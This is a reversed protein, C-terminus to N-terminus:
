EKDDDADRDAKDLARARKSEQELIERTRRDLMEDRVSKMEALRSKLEELRTELQRVEMNRRELRNDFEQAALERISKRIRAKEASDESARYNRAMEQLQLGVQRERILVLARAPDRERTDMLRRMEPAIREMQREYRQPASEKVKDLDVVMRPFHEEMFDMIDKRQAESMDKWAPGRPGRREPAGRRARQPGDMPRDPGDMLPDPRDILRDPHDPRPPPPPEEQVGARTTSATMLAAWIFIKSIRM